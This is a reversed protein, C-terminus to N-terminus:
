VAVFTARSTRTRRYGAFGLGVFGPLMMAWTSPEPVATVAVGGIVPGYPSSFADESAFTLTTPGGTTFSLTEWVYNMDTHSNAGTTYTFLPDEIAGISVDVTKTPYGGDPNGSLYFSLRYSGATLDLWQSVGGPHLGDLDVSGGGPTPSQWYGGILDVSGGIVSWPGITSGGAYTTFTGGGWPLSFDGDGVYNVGASAVNPAALAAVLVAVAGFLKANMTTEGSALGFFLLRWEGFVTLDL